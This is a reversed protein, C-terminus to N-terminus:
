GESQRSRGRVSIPRGQRLRSIVAWCRPITLSTAARGYRLPRNLLLSMAVLIVSGYLLGNEVIGACHHRGARGTEAWRRPVFEPELRAEATRSETPGDREAALFVLEILRREGAPDTM